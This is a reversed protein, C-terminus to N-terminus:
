PWDGPEKVLLTHGSPGGGACAQPSLRLSLRIRLTAFDLIHGLLELGKAQLADARLNAVYNSAWV